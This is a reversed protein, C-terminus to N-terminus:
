QPDEETHLSSFVKPVDFEKSNTGINPRSRMSRREEFSSRIPDKQVSSSGVWRQGM